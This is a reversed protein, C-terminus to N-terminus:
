AELVSIDHDIPEKAFVIGHALASLDDFRNFLKRTQEAEGDAHNM